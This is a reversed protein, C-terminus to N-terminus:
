QVEEVSVLSAELENIRNRLAQRENHLEAINYPLEEGLLQYESCKIIKYDTAELQMKLSKIEMLTESNDPLVPNEVKWKEWLEINPRVVIQDKEATIVVFGNYQLYTELQEDTIAIAGAFPTSQPTGYAGSENLDQNIYWM